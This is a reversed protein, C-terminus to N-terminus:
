CADDVHKQVEARSMAKDDAWWQGPGLGEIDAAAFRNVGRYEVLTAREKPSWRGVVFEVAYFGNASLKRAPRVKGHWGEPPHYVNIEQEGTVARPPRASWGDLVEADVRDTDDDIHRVSVEEMHTGHSCPMLLARVDGDPGRGIAVLPLEPPSCGATLSALVVVAGVGWLMRVTGARRGRVHSEGM